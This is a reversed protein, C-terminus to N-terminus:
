GENTKYTAAVCAADNDEDEKNEETITNKKRRAYFENSSKFKSKLTINLKTIASFIDIVNEHPQKSLINPLGISSAVKGNLELDLLQHEAMNKYQYLLIDYRTQGIIIPSSLKLAILWHLNDAKPLYFIEM